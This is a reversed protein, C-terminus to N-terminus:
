PALVVEAPRASVTPDAHRHVIRWEGDERRFISSVRLAFPKLEAAGGIKSMYREIEVICALDAARYESVREFGTSYGDSYNAAAREMTAEVDNWGRAPPGFPNALTADDSHSYLAKLPEPDGAPFADLARHSQEIATALDPTTITM